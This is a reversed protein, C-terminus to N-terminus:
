IFNKGTSLYMCKECSKNISYDDMFSFGSYDARIASLPDGSKQTNVIHNYHNIILHRWFKSTWRYSESEIFVDTIKIIEESLNLSIKNIEKLTQEPTKM